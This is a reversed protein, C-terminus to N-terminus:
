CDAGGGVWSPKIASLQYSIASVQYSIALLKVGQEPCPETLCTQPRSASEIPTVTNFAPIQLSRGGCYGVPPLAVVAAVRDPVAGVGAVGAALVGGASDVVSHLDM